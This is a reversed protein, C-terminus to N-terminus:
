DDSLHPGQASRRAQRFWYIRGGVAGLLFGLLGTIFGGMPGQNGGYDFVIPGFFGADFCVGGTALAGTVVSGFLGPRPAETLRWLSVAVVVAAFLSVLWAGGHLFGPLKGSLAPFMCFVPYNAPFRQVGCRGRAM